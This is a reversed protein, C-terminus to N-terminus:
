PNINQICKRLSARWHPIQIGFTAKIKDKALVAFPPRSAAAPYDASAIPQIKAALDPYGADEFIAVAFDYWSALGEAAYHYTGPLWAKHALIAAIADALDAASTPTGVQDAVVRPARGEAALALMTRVFNHGHPSYLWGTRIIISDPALGILAMEGKRKSSGYVNIPAPKDSESYPRNAAGDFVYDTSLHILRIDSDAAINALTEVATTNVAKCAAKEEEARDVATYAACNVIHSFAGGRVYAATADADTVDLDAHSAFVTDAGPITALARRLEMGLQGEAGTVLIKMM